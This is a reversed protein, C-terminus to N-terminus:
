GKFSHIGINSNQGTSPIRLTHIGSNPRCNKHSHGQSRLHVEDSLYKKRIKM